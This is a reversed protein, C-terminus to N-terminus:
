RKMFRNTVSNMHCIFGCGFQQNGWVPSCAEAIDIAGGVYNQPDLMGAKAREIEQQRVIIRDLQGSGEFFSPLPPVLLPHGASHRV